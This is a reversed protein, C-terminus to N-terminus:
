KSNHPGTRHYISWWMDLFHYNVKLSTKSRSLSLIFKVPVIQVCSITQNILLSQLKWFAWSMESKCLDGVNLSKYTTLRKWDNITQLKKKYFLRCLSLSAFLQPDMHSADQFQLLSEVAMDCLFDGARLIKVSYLKTLWVLFWKHPVFDLPRLLKM